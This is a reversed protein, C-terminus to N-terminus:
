ETGPAMALTVTATTGIGPASKFKLTGKHEKIITACISLGLGTGGRDLKTTFFPETIRKLTEESMGEGEDRVTIVVTSTAPDARTEVTLGASKNPLAQLGNMILNIVVQEVQQANGTALPLRDETHLQFKDTHRHIFPSLIQSGDQVVKNVDFANHRAAKDERAYDKLNGVITSIRRSGEKLGRLLRPVVQGVEEFPLGGITGLGSESSHQTIIPMIDQWIKELIVANGQIFTNPNNIEHAIGSVLVGLSTMKNAHILRAQNSSAEEELRIRDTIDRISCYVVEESCLRIVNGWISVIVARGGKKMTKLMDIHFTSSQGPQPIASIFTNYEEPALFAAPGLQEFEDRTYCFLEEAATNADIVEMCGRRLLIIADEHQEFIGRFREESERRAEEAQKVGTIDLYSMVSRGTGPIMKVNTLINRVTGFRDTFDFEYNVPVTADGTRRLKHYKLMRERCSDTVFQTWSMKGEIEERPYGSLLVFEDNVLSLTTDEEIIVTATGTTEFVTRYMEESVRLSNEARMHETIDIMTILCEQGTAASVAEIKAFFPSDGANLLASEFSECSLSTYVKDLFSSFRPLSESPVFHWFPMGILHCREVGLFSAGTINASLITGNRDLTIYGAPTFDYFSAFKDRMAEIENSARRLATYETGPEVSQLRAEQLLSEAENVAVASRETGTDQGSNEKTKRRLGMSRQQVKNGAM